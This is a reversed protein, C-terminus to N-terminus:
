RARSAPEHCLGVIEWMERDESLHEALSRMLGAIVRTYVARPTRGLRLDGLAHADALSLM